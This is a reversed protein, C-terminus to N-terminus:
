RRSDVPVLAPSFWRRSFFAALFKGSRRCEPTDAIAKAVHFASVNVAGKSFSCILAKHALINILRAIGGSARFILLTATRSFLSTDTCGSYALRHVIYSRVGHHDFPLLAESYMIRQKLQRLDRRELMADLEPQGLMVVQLLKRKETELNTLLRLSEITKRPMSQAEDVILVVQKGARAILLLQNFIARTLAHPPTDRQMPVGLEHAICLKLEHPSLWPNPIYATRFSSSELSALLMRCLLTKGTGVEGVIKIFGEGENLAALMTNLAASHSRQAMFFQTDPTLSFPKQQLRFHQLYM